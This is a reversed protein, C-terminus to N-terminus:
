ARAIAFPQASAQSSQRAPAPSSRLRPMPHRSHRPRCAHPPRALEADAASSSSAIWCRIASSSRVSGPRSCGISACRGPEASPPRGSRALAPAVDARGLRFARRGAVASRPPRRCLQEPRLCTRAVALRDPSPGCIRLPDLTDPEFSPVNHRERVPPEPHAAGNLAVITTSAFPQISRSRSSISTRRM